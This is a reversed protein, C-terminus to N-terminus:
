ASVEDSVTNKDNRLDYDRGKWAVRGSAYRRWSELAILTWGIVSFPHAVWLLMPYGYRWDSLIRPLLSLCVALLPEFLGSGVMLSSALWLWPLLAVIWVMVILGIMAAPTAGSAPYVNKAFGNWVELASGYMRCSVTGVANMLQFRLGARKVARALAMDEIVSAHVRAHGGVRDYAERRFALLQGIAAVAVGFTPVPVLTMPLFALLSWQQVPQVLRSFWGTVPHEPWASLADARTRTMAQVILRVGDPQWTTDADTFVLVEGNSARSLQHCAWNKGLWGAPLPAGELLRLAPISLAWHQLVDSTGDTSQDNLVIIELDPYDQKALSSLLGPLTQEENRAPVLLSVRPTGSLSVHRYDRLRRLVLTNVLALVALFVLLGLLM